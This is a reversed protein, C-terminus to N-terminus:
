IWPKMVRPEAGEQCAEPSPAEGPFRIPKMASYTNCIEPRKGSLAARRVLTCITPILTGRKVTQLKQPTKNPERVSSLFSPSILRAEGEEERDICCSCNPSEM